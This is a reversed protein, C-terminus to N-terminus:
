LNLTCDINKQGKKGWSSLIIITGFNLKQLCPNYMYLHKLHRSCFTDTLLKFHVRMRM